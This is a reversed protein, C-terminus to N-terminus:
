FRYVVGVGMTVYRLDASVTSTGLELDRTLARYRVGPNLDLRAGVPISLGGGVEWGLGHGSDAINGVDDDEIEIHNAIGGARLWGAAQAFMPREYRLGFAYGTDEVDLESSGVVEVTRFHHWDWGAYTQLNSMLRYGVTVGFGVGVGLESGALRETAFAADGSAEISWRAQAGAISATAVFAAAALGGTIRKM